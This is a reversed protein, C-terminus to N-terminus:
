ERLLAIYNQYVFIECVTPDYADIRLLGHPLLRYIDFQPSLLKWFDLFFVGLVSNLQTFEFQIAQIKRAKLMANAGKLVQLEHGEVDIKLLDIHEVSELSCFDDLTRAIVSMEVAPVLHVASFVEAHMSAHSSGRKDVRDYFRVEGSTDSLAAKVCSVDQRGSTNSLLLAFAQPNPEFAFVRKVHASRVLLQSYGGVNAGVDFVVLGSGMRQGITRLFWREGSIGMGQYNGLGMGRLSFQYMVKNIRCLFPFGFLWAYLQYLFQM